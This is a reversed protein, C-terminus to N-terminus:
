FGFQTGEGARALGWSMTETNRAHGFDGRPGVLILGGRGGIREGFGAIAAEAAEQAPAGSRVLEAAHRALSFRMIQEGIGTTSCAGARDDAWTGAGVIPTDGVRGPTKGVTGGTSTAAAVRGSPDCAVAGVTSGAWGRDAEGALVQELRRRAAETIMACDEARLFGAREAFRAAGDGAYFTHKGDERVADAIRIPNRFAPLCTVAGMHLHAGEMVSADLELTGDSTLCAGTGANFLPDDELMVVAAIAAELPDGTELLVRLGEAAARKCGEAHVPRKPLPVAGAGGHVLVVPVVGSM